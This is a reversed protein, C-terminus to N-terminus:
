NTRQKTKNKVIHQTTGYFGGSESPSFILGDYFIGRIGWDSHAAKADVGVGWLHGQYLLFEPLPLHRPSPTSIACYPRFPASIKLGDTHTHWDPQTKSWLLSTYSLGPQVLIPSRPTLPSHGYTETFWCSSCLSPCVRHPFISGRKGVDCRSSPCFFLEELNLSLSAGYQGHVIGSDVETLTGECVVHSSLSPTVSVHASSFVLGFWKFCVRSVETVGM